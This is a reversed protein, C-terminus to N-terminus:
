IQLPDEGVRGKLNERALSIMKVLQEATIRNAPKWMLCAHITDRLETSYPWFGNRIEEDTIPLMGQYGQPAEQVRYCLCWVLLGLQFVDSATTYQNGEPVRAKVMFQEEGGGTGLRSSTTAAGFDGLVANPYVSSTQDERSSLFVNAPLIDRHLVPDWEEEPKTSLRRAGQQNFQIGTHCYRLAKAVGEFAAWIFGEPVNKSLQQYKSIVHRLTGSDCYQMYIREFSPGSPRVPGLKHDYIHVIHKHGRLRLLIAAEQSKPSGSNDPAKCIRIGQNQVDKMLFIGRNYAGGVSTLHRVVQYKGDAIFEAQLERQPVTQLYLPVPSNIHMM